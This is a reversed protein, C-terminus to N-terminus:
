RGEETASTKATTGDNKLSLNTRKPRKESNEDSKAPRRAALNKRSGGASRVRVRRGGNETTVDHGPLRRRANGCSAPWRRRMVDSANRAIGGGANMMVIADDDNMRATASRAIEGAVSKTAANRRTGDAHRTTGPAPADATPRDPDAPGTAGPLLADAHPLPVDHGTRPAHGGSKLTGKARTGVRRTPETAASPSSATRKRASRLTKTRRRTGPSATKVTRATKEIKAEAKARTGLNVIIIIM